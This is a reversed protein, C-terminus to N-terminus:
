FPIENPEIERQQDFIDDYDPEPEDDSGVVFQTLTDISQSQRALMSLIKEYAVDTPDTSQKLSQWELATSIPNTIQGSNEVSFKIQSQIEDICGFAADVDNLNFQIARIQQVDFPLKDDSNICIVPLGTVHRVALEYFVNANQGTLDAIVLSDNQLHQFIDDTILSPNSSQEARVIEYGLPEVARIIINKLVKDSYKRIDSDKSGIPGIVFCIKKDM